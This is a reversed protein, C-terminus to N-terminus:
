NLKNMKIIQVIIRKTHIITYAGYGNGKQRIYLVSETSLIM